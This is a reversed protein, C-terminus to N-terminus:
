FKGVQAYADVTVAIDYEVNNTIISRPTMEIELEPCESSSNDDNKRILDLFDVPEPAVLNIENGLGNPNTASGLVIPVQEQGNEPAPIYRITLASLFNFNGSTATLKTEVIHLGSLRIFNSIDVGGVQLFREELESESPINCLDERYSVPPAGKLVVISPLITGEGVDATFRVPGVEIFGGLCGVTTLGAIAALAYFIGRNRGTTSM